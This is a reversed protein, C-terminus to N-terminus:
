CSRDVSRLGFVDTTQPVDALSCALWGAPLCAQTTSLLSLSLSLSRLRLATCSFKITGAM